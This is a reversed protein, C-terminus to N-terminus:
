PRQWRAGKVLSLEVTSNLAHRGGDVSAGVLHAIADQTEIDILRYCAVLEAEFPNLLYHKMQQQAQM